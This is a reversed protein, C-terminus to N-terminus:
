SEAQPTVDQTVISMKQVPLSQSTIIEVCIIIQKVFLLNNFYNNLWFQGFNVEELKELTHVKQKEKNYM